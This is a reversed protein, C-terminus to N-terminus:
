KRGIEWLAGSTDTTRSYVPVDLVAVQKLVYRGELEHRGATMGSDDDLLFVRRGERFMADIFLARESQAWLTPLFTERM